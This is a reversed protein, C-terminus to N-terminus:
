GNNTKVLNQYVKLTKLATAQWTFQKVNQKGLKVLNDRLERDKFLKDMAKQLEESNECDIALASNNTVEPLSSSDSCIVPCNNAMAELVPLGFGEYISPYVFFTAYQYLNILDADSGKHYSVRDSIQLESMLKLEEENFAHSGFCILKAQNKFSSLAYARLVKGFNKYGERKGVFLIYDEKIMRKTQSEFDDVGHHVVTTKHIDVQYYKILDSQTNKSVCIIHDAANISKKKRWLYDDTDSFDHPYKEYILDHITIVTKVNKPLYLEYGNYTQHIVDITPDSLAKKEIFTNYTESFDYFRNVMLQRKLCNFSTGSFTIDSELLHENPTIGAVTTIEISTEIKKLAEILKVFYKSIGGHQQMRFIQSDYAIHM